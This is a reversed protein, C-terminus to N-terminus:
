TLVWSSSGTGLESEPSFFFRDRKTLLVHHGNLWHLSVQSSRQKLSTGSCQQSRAAHTLHGLIPLPEVSFGQGLAGLDLLSPLNWVCGGGGGGNGNATLWDLCRSAGYASQQFNRGSVSLQRQERHPLGLGTIDEWLASHEFAKHLQLLIRLFEDPLISWYNNILWMFWRSHWSGLCFAM